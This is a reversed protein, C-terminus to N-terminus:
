RAHRQPVLGSLPPRALAVGRQHVARDDSRARLNEARDRDSRARTPALATTVEAIHGFTRHHDADRRARGHDLAARRGFLAEDGISRGTGLQEIRLGLLDFLQQRHVRYAAGGVEVHQEGLLFLLAVAGSPSRARKRARRAQTPDSRPRVSACEPSTRAFHDRGTMPPVIRHIQRSTAIKEARRRVASRGSYRMSFRGRARLRCPMHASIPSPPMILVPGRVPGPRAGTSRRSSFSTSSYTGPRDRSFRRGERHSGAGEKDWGNLIPRNSAAASVASTMSVRRASRIAKAPPPRRSLRNPGRRRRRPRAPRTSLGATETGASASMGAQASMTGDTTSTTTSAQGQARDSRGRGGPPIAGGPVQNGKTESGVRNCICKEDM